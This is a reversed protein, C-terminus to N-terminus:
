GVAKALREIAMNAGTLKGKSWPIRKPTPLESNANDQM